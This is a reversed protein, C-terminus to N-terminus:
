IISILMLTTTTIRDPSKKKKQITLRHIRTIVKYFNTSIDLTWMKTKHDVDFVSHVSVIRKWYVESCFLDMWGEKIMLRWDKCPWLPHPWNWSDSHSCHPGQICPWNVVPSVYLSLCVGECEYECAKYLKCDAEGAHRWVTPLLRLAWLFCLCICNSCALRVCFYRTWAWLGRVTLCCLKDSCWLVM